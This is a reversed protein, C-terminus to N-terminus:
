VVGVLAALERRSAKGLTEAALEPATDNLFVSMGEELGARIGVLPYAELHWHLELDKDGQPSNHFVVTFPVDGLAHSVGGLTSRLILALDSIEKDSIKLFSTQHTKPSIWFEFPHTAAWPAFALFHTTSLIQRPGGTELSVVRCITCIGLDYMSKEVAKIEYEIAPPIIPLTHIEFNPHYSTVAGDDGYGVGYNLFIATYEGSKRSSSSRATEQLISLIQALKEVKLTQVKDDHNTIAVILHRGVPILHSLMEDDKLDYPRKSSILKSKQDVVVAPKGKGRIESCIACRTSTKKMPVKIDVPRGSRGSNMIVFKEGFYDKRLETVTVDVM